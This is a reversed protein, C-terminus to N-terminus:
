EWGEFRRVNKLKLDEFDLAEGLFLLPPEESYDVTAFCADHARLDVFTVEQKDWYEFPLEGEVGRYRARTVSSVAYVVENWKFRQGPELKEAPPLTRMAPSLFSVAYELQADSLWGSKGDNFVLHWENWGGKEYEYLIRGVVVFARNRYIGETAIQVPSADPPLEAVEGVRKLDVDTRILVSRCYPCVTQVAGSWRFDVGAGCNPCNAQKGNM